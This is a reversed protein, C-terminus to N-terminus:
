SLVMRIGKPLSIKPTWGFARHMASIDAWAAGDSIRASIGERNQEGILEARVLEVVDSVKTAGGSGLNFVGSPGTRLTLAVLGSAVDQVHILDIASQTDRLDPASGARWANITMPILSGERQGSGYAYFIRAWRTQTGTDQEVSELLQRLCSKAQTFMSTSTTPLNESLEGQLGGYEWCSGAGVIRSVGGELAIRVVQISSSVNALCADASYDPLGSWGLHLLVEPAFTKVRNLIANEPVKLLDVAQIGWQEVVETPKTTLAMVEAGEAILIPVVAQGIFGTAGTLLIRSEFNSEMLKGTL